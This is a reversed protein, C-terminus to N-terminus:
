PSAPPPAPPAPPTFDEAHAKKNALIQAPTQGARHLAVWRIKIQVLDEVPLFSELQKMLAPLNDTTSADAMAEIWDVLNGQDRALLYTMELPFGDQHWFTWAGGVFLAGIPTRGTVYIM